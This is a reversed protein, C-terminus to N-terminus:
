LSVQKQKGFSPNSAYMEVGLFLVFVDKSVVYVKERNQVQKERVTETGPAEM